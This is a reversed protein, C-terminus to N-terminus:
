EGAPSSHYQSAANTFAHKFSTCSMQKNISVADNGSTNQWSDLANEGCVVKEELQKWKSRLQKRKRLHLRSFSNFYWPTSYKENQKFGSKCLWKCILQQQWSRRLSASVWGGHLGSTPLETRYGCVKTQKFTSIYGRFRNASGYILPDRCGRGSFNKKFFTVMHFQRKRANRTNVILRRWLIGLWRFPLSLAISM